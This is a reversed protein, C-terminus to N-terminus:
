QHLFLRRGFLTTVVDFRRRTSLLYHLIFYIIFMSQCVEMDLGIDVPQGVVPEQVQELAPEVMVEFPSGSVHKGNKKISIEHRGPQDPVFSVGITNNDNLILDMPEETRKNPRKLTGQLTKFDRPLNLGPIDLNVDCESGVTPAKATPEEGEVMVEFPSGKVPRGRKTVDIVHQGPETPTFELALTNDPSCNCPIEDVKLLFNHLFLITLVFPFRSFQM